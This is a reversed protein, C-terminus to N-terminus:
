RKEKNRQATAISAVFISILENTEILLPDLKGAPRILPKKQIILLWVRSERLEKLSIKMKHIFDNRSEASQAEAFNPAASTGCRVLQNGVHNGVKTSPLAEVVALIRVAFQILREELDYV